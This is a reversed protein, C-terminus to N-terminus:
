KDQVAKDDLLFGGVQAKWLESYLGGKALLEQHTGDEVITGKDFVLIRDMHLLTSMRHAIVLTTKGQMLESMSEQIYNESISDLQSTAEDLILLPANKLIARAIAIRQRQGGSLKVGREGVLTEYGHSLEQIFEQAHARKAADFVEEDSADMRGYQINEMITRHFLDPEQPIMGINKLLSEKSVAKIVQKDILIEGQQIDSLRLILKAFTSKGSGSYGVLGVKEGPQIIINLKQFLPKAGYSFGVERFEINGKTVTLQTANPSDPIEHVETIISLAQRCTGVERSYYLMAQGIESTHILFTVTLALVLAFDGLTVWGHAFGYVLAALMCGIFITVTLAEVFHVKLIYWQLARDKEVVDNLTKNIRKREYPVNAFMKASIINSISDVIAGFLTAVSQSFVFSREESLRSFNYTITIYCVSWIILILSFIPHVTWLVFSAIILAMIRPLFMNVVVRIVPEISIAMDQIKKALSGAFNNLFYSHSHQSLYEFMVNTVDSKIKPFVKLYVYEYFRFNLNLLFSMSGYLVVPLLIASMVMEPSHQYQNATDIILKLLYPSLSMEIAWILGTVCLALLGWKHPASLYWVFAGLTKPLPAHSPDLTPPDDKLNNLHIAESNNGNKLV